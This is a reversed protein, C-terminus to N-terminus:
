GRARYSSQRAPPKCVDFAEGGKGIIGKLGKVFDATPGSDDELNSTWDEKGTALLVQETYPAMTNLLPTKRDIDLDPPAAACACTPSPCTETYPISQTPSQLRPTTTTFARFSRICPVRARSLRLFAVSMNTTTSPLRTSSGPFNDSGCIIVRVKPSLPPSPEANPKRNVLMIFHHQESQSTMGHESDAGQLSHLM